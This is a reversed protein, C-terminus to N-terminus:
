LDVGALLSSSLFFSPPGPDLFRDSQSLCLSNLVSATLASTSVVIKHHLVIHTLTHDLYVFLSLSLSLSLSHSLTLPVFDNDIRSFAVIVIATVVVKVM